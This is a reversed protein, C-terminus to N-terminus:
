NLMQLLYEVNNEWLCITKANSFYASQNLRIDNEFVITFRLTQSVYTRLLYGYIPQYTDQLPLM